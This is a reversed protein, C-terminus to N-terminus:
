EPDGTDQTPPGAATALDDPGAIPVGPDSTEADPMAPTDPEAIPAATDPFLRVEVPEGQALGESGLPVRVLGHGQILSRLLGSRGLVPDALWGGGEPERGRTVRVRQYLERGPAAPVNRRLTARLRGFRPLAAAPRGHLRELLPEVLLHFAVLCSAVQGPLGLLHHEGARVWIFPKGPAVSVGHVRLEAQPASQFVDATLDRTGVSSGGSLLTLDAQALSRGMAAELADRRDPVLGLPVPEGGAARVQAALVHANVDRIQGPGPEQEPPVVEDGTSLIGVRPRRSVTPQTEGLAALLGVDQPRLRTGARLLVQGAEADDTAGLIHTGPAVARTIEVTDPEVERTHEVMVVADAGEPLMGGTGISACGGPRLAFGPAEGMVVEGQRRLYAPQSETAGYTDRACVAYGDMTSRTFGPLDGPATFDTALTRGAAEGLGVAEAPLPAVERMQAWVQELRQVHFFPKM